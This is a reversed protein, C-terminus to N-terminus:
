GRFNVAVQSAVIRAILSRFLFMRSKRDSQLQHKITQHRVSKFRDKYSRFNVQHMNTRHKPRNDLRHSRAVKLSTLVRRKWRSIWGARTRIIAQGRYSVRNRHDNRNGRLKSGKFCKKPRALHKWSRSEVSEPSVIQNCRISLARIVGRSQAILGQGVM